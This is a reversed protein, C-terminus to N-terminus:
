ELGESDAGAGDTSQEYQLPGVPQHQLVDIRMVDSQQHLLDCQVDVEYCLM